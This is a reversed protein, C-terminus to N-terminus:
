DITEPEARLWGVQLGGWFSKSMTGVTVALHPRAVAAFPTPAEADLGLDVLTEDVIAVVGTQELGVALRRRQTEDLLLGTPNQFDPMLYAAHPSSARVARHVDRAVAVAFGGFAVVIRTRLRPSVPRGESPLGRRPDHRADARARAEGARPAAIRDPRRRGAALAQRAAHRADVAATAGVFGLTLILQVLVAVPFWALEFVIGDVTALSAVAPGVQRHWIKAQIGAMAVEIDLALRPAALLGIAGAVGADLVGDSVLGRRALADEPDHLGDIVARYAQDELAAPSQGLRAQMADVQQPQAVDFPLPADGALHAAYQLERLTLGIRRPAADIAGADEQPVSDGTSQPVATLTTLDITPM